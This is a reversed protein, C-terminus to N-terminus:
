QPIWEIWYKAYYCLSKYMFVYYWQLLWGPNPILPSKNACYASRLAVVSKRQKLHARANSKPLANGLFHEKKQGDRANSQQRNGLFFSNIELSLFVNRFFGLKNWSIFFMKGAINKQKNKEGGEIVKQWISWFNKKIKDGEIVNRIYTKKIEDGEIVKRFIPSINKTKINKMTSAIAFM